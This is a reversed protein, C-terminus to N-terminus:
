QKGSKTSERIVGSLKYRSGEMRTGTVDLWGEHDGDSYGFHFSDGNLGGENLRAGADSAAREAEAKLRIIFAGEDFKTGGREEIAYFFSFERRRRIGPSSSGGVSSSAPKLEPANVRAVTEAFSFERFFRTEPESQRQRSCGPLAFGIVVFCLFLRRM